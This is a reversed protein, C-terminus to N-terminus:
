EELIIGDKSGSEPKSSPTSVKKVANIAYCYLKKSVDATYHVGDVTTFGSRMLYDYGGICRSGFVSKIKANFAQRKKNKAAGSGNGPTADLFYFKTKPYKKLLNTYYKIYNNVNNYDNNGLQFIVTYNPNKNLYSMLRPGGTNKLWSYGEGGKAIFVTDSSNVAVSMDVIRSAGVIIYKDQKSPSTVVGSKNIKRGKVTTNAVRAGDKGVYSNGVWSSTVLRGLRDFYYTKGGISKWSSKVALGNAGYYYSKKSDKRWKNVYVKGKKDAYYSNNKYKFSGTNVYGNKDFCYVGGDIYCWTNKVYMGNKKRYRIGRSNKVWKGGSVRHNRAYSVMNQSSAGSVTGAAKSALFQVTSGAAATGAGQVEQFGAIMFVATLLWIVPTKWKNYFSLKM